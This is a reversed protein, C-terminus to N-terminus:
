VSCLSGEPDCGGLLAERPSYKGWPQSAFAAFATEEPQEALNGSPLLGPTGVPIFLCLVPEPALGGEGRPWWPLALHHAQSCSPVM